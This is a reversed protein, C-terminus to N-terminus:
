RRTAGRKNRRRSLRHASGVIPRYGESSDGHLLEVAGGNKANASAALDREAAVALHRHAVDPDLAVRALHAPEVVVLDEAAEGAAGSVRERQELAELALELFVAAVQLACRDLDGLVPAGVTVQAAE